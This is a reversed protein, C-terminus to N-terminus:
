SINSYIFITINIILEIIKFIIFLWDRDWMETLIYIFIYIYHYQDAWHNQSWYDQLYYLILRQRVNRNLYIQIYLYSSISWNNILEIIKLIIFSWPQDNKIGSLNSFIKLVILLKWKSFTLLLTFTQNITIM